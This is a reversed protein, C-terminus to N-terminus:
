RGDEAQDGTAPKRPESQGPQAGPDDGRRPVYGDRGDDAQEGDNLKGM